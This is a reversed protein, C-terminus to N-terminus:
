VGAKQLNFRLYRISGKEVESTVRDLWYKIEAIDLQPVNGGALVSGVGM